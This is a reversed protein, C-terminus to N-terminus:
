GIKSMCLLFSHLDEENEKNYEICHLVIDTYISDETMCSLGM